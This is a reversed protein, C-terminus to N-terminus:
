KQKKDIVILLCLIASIFTLPTFVYLEFESEAFLNGITNLSFLGALLWIITNILKVPIKNQIYAAKLLLILIAFANVLISIVELNRLDAATRIKGAWVICYPIVGTLVLTHFVLLSTLLAIMINIAQKQSILKIMKIRVKNNKKDRGFQVIEDPIEERVVTSKFGKVILYIGVAFEFVAVPLAFLGTSSDHQGIIGSLVCIDGAILIPGGILGILSLGRPVLRSQYLLFGLLIDNVAPMLSQGILFMRDYMTVLTRGIILAGTGAATQRLTVVTLLFMVGVFITCSELIRSGVLGMAVGENQKRLEPYLVVATGIGALAVIIELIGGIIVSTDPGYGLIYNPGHISKYLALTPISVFTLIYLVGAFLATKRTSSMPARETSIETIYATKINSNIERM